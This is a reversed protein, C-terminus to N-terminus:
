FELLKIKLNTLLRTKEKTTMMHLDFIRQKAKLGWNLIKNLQQIGRQCISENKLIVIDVNEGTM